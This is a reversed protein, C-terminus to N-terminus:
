ASRSAVTWRLFGGYEMKCNNRWEEIMEGFFVQIVIDQSTDQNHFDEETFSRETPWTEGLALNLARLINSMGSNNEGVLVCYAGPEFDLTKISRFNEIHIRKIQM